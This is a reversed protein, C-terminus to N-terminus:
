AAPLCGTPGPLVGGSDYRSPAALLFPPYSSLNTNRKSVCNTYTVM